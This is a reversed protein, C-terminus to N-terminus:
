LTHTYYTYVDSSETCVIDESCNKIINRIQKATAKVNEPLFKFVECTFVNKEYLVKGCYSFVKSACLTVISVDTKYM